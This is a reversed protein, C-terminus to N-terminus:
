AEMDQIQHQTHRHYRKKKPRPDQDDGSAGEHNDSGGSKTNTSDFEDDRIRGLDGESTTQTMDLHGGHLQGEMMNPQFM